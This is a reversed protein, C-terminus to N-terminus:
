EFKMTQYKKLSKKLSIIKDRVMKNAHIIANERDTFWEKGQGCPYFYRPYGSSTNKYMEGTKEVELEMIKATSLCYQTVYIKM